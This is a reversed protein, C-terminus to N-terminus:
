RRAYLRWLGPVIFSVASLGLTLWFLLDEQTADPPRALLAIWCGLLVTLFPVGVALRQANSGVGGRLWVVIVVTAIIGILTLPLGSLFNETVNTLHM